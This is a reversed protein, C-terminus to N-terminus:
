VPRTAPRGRGRSPKASPTDRILPQLYGMLLASLEDVFTPNTLYDPRDAVAKICLAEVAHVIIFVAMDLDKPRIEGVRPALFARVLRFLRQEYPDTQGLERMRPMLEHLMQHLKPDERKMALVQRILARLATPLPESALQVLGAEFDSLSRARHREMVALVLGEKSPFYQYLSGISVGAERAIRNTSAADYGEKVLVRATATLIADCTAQARDQRPRRRSSPRPRSPM